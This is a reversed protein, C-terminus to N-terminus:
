QESGKVLSLAWGADIFHGETFCGDKFMLFAARPAGPMLGIVVTDADIDSVPPVENFRQMLVAAAIGDRTVFGIPRGASAQLSAQMMEPSRCEEARGMVPLILLAALFVAIAKLLPCKARDKPVSM